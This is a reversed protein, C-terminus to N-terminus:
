RGFAQTFEVIRAANAGLDSRGVRSKSRLDIVAGSGEAQVRIAIDDVFKFLFSTERADITLGEPDRHVIDWGLSQPQQSLGKM